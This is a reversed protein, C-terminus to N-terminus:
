KNSTLLLLLVGRISPIASCGKNAKDGASIKTKLMSFFEDDFVEIVIVFVDATWLTAKLTLVVCGLQYKTFGFWCTNSQPWLSSTANTKTSVSHLLNKSAAICPVGSFSSLCRKRTCLLIILSSSYLLNINSGGAFRTSSTIMGISCLYM